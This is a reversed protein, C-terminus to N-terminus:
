APVQSNSGMLRADLANQNALSQLVTGMARPDYGARRLYDIGLNDSETEQGRSYRLTLLQSGQLLGRQLVQGVQSNGLVAGALVTKPQALAWHLMRLYPTKMKRLLWTDHEAGGKLIYSCLVPSLTFS